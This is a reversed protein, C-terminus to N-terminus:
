VALARVEPVCGICRKVPPASVPRVALASAGSTCNLLACTFVCAFPAMARSLLKRMLAGDRAKEEKEFPVFTVESRAVKPTVPAGMVVAEPLPVVVFAWVM